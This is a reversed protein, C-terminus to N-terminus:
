HLYGLGPQPVPYHNLCLPCTYHHVPFLCYLSHSVRFIGHSWLKSTLWSPGGGGQRYEPDSSDHNSCHTPEWQGQLVTMSDRIPIKFFFRQIYIGCNLWKWIMEEQRGSGYGHNFHGKMPLLSATSFFILYPCPAPSPPPYLGDVHNGHLGASDCSHANWIRVLSPWTHHHGRFFFFFARHAKLILVSSFKPFFSYM